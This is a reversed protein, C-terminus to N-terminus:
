CGVKEAYKYAYKSPPHSTVASCTETMGYGQKFGTGPFKQELLKIVEGPLPAAGSSFRKIHSLNYKSVAKTDRVLRILIPPVILLERIKNESVTRLLSDLTYTPVVYVHANLVIPLHVEHVIGTIHYFPLAALVKDHDPPTIQQMQLCQAIINAHSIMVAKSLGTTGSSLCLYACVDHNTKGAPITFPKVFASSSSATANQLLDAVGKTGGEGGGMYMLVDKDLGVKAAAAAATEKFSPATFLLKTKTLKLAYTLEDVGYEPSVGCAVAGIRVAALAIIPYWTSNKNYITLVDGESVGFDRSLVTSLHETYIKLQGYSIHQTTEVDTYGQLQEAGFKPLCTEFLWSWLTQDQPDALM